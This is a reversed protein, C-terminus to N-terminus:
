TGSEITRNSPLGEGCCRWSPLERSYLRPCSVFLSMAPLPSRRGRMGSHSRMGLYESATHVTNPVPPFPPTQELLVTGSQKQPLTHPVLPGPHGRGARFPSMVRPCRCNQTLGLHLAPHPGSESVERGGAGLELGRTEQRSPADGVGPRATPVSTSRKTCGRFDRLHQVFAM